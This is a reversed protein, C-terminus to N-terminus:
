TTQSSVLQRLLRPIRNLKNEDHIEGPLLDRTLQSCSTSGSDLRPSRAPRSGRGLTKNGPWMRAAQSQEAAAALMRVAVAPWWSPCLTVM